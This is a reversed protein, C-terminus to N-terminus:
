KGIGKKSFSGLKITEKKLKSIRPKKVELEIRKAAIECYKESIEIGIWKRNLKECSVGVTGSGATFDLVTEGENTYTKILYNTLIVPKQTPHLNEQCNNFKITQLPLAKNLPIKRKSQKSHESYCKTKKRVLTEPRINEKPKNRLQPNYTPLNKYFICIEEVNKMPMKYANLHGVAQSKIWTWCYKFMGMNSSILITTFPQSATMAIAGNPKILRKLQKWMLELPIISDWKCATIGYPPDACIMDIKDKLEPMVELCDDCFLIGNDTYYYCKPHKKLKELNM